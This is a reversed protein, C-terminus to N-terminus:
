FLKYNENIKNKILRQIWLQFEEYSMSGKAFNCIKCCSVVNLLNYGCNSDIRDIGSVFMSHKKRKVETSPPEGCYHCNGYILKYFEDKDLKWDLNRLKASYRYNNYKINCIAIDSEIQKFLNSKSLCGCSKKGKKIEKTRGIFINGCDCKCEWATYKRGCETVITEVQKIIVFNNFRLGSEYKTRITM